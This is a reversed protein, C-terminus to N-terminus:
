RLNWLLERFTSDPFELYYAELLDGPTVTGGDWTLVEQIEEARDYPVGAAQAAEDVDEVTISGRKEEIGAGSLVQRTIKGKDISSDDNRRNNRTM